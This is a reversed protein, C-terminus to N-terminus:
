LGYVEAWLLSVKDPAEACRRGAAASGGEGRGERARCREAVAPSVVGRYPRFDGRDIAAEVQARYDGAGGGGREEFSLWLVREAVCRAAAESGVVASSLYVWDHDREALTLAPLLRGFAVTSNLVLAETEVRAGGGEQRGAGSQGDCGCGGEDFALLLGCGWVRLGQARLAALLGEGAEAAQWMLGREHVAGLTAEARVQVCCM